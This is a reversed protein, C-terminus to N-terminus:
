RIESLIRENFGDIVPNIKALYVDEDYSEVNVDDLQNATKEFIHADIKWVANEKVYTLHQISSNMYISPEYSTSLTFWDTVTETFETTEDNM